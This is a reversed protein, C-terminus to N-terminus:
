VEGTRIEWYHSRIAARAQKEFTTSDFAICHLSHTLRILPQALFVRLLYRYFEQGTIPHASAWPRVYVALRSRISYAGIGVMDEMGKPQFNRYHFLRGLTLYQGNDNPKSLLTIPLIHMRITQVMGISAPRMPHLSGM